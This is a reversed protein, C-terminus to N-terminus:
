KIVEELRKKWTEYEGKNDFWYESLLPCIEYKVVQELWTDDVEDSEPPCFYSHGIRYGDGLSEDKGIEVNLEQICKILRSFKDNGVQAIINKFGESDFAPEMDFFAFRRRLAYDIMALSRDATNMLGILYVNEPVAFRQKTYLLRIKEGRKDNEILMLLEGFIKSLNGRNIEDIIFFYPNGTPDGEAKKCFRYFPGPLLKFGDKAPKFGLIFDEYSYSQHFQIMEVRAEDMKTMFSYAFRKAAYTKGVGPPGQIIVNKKSRLLGTLTDYSDGDMFVEELFRSQTYTDATPSPKRPTDTDTGPENIFIAELALRKHENGTIDTLAKADLPIPSPWQGSHTWQVDCVHQFDSRNKEFRYGTQVVGRGIIENRGNKAFVVDGPKVVRAINWLALSINTPEKPNLEAMRISKAKADLSDKTEYSSLDGYGEWGLAMIGADHFEEWKSGNDGPAFTWYRVDGSQSGSPTVTGKKSFKWANSSLSPFSDIQVEAMSFLERTLDVLKLYDTANPPRNPNLLGKLGIFQSVYELLYTRNKGDLNLYSYPRAWYAGMTLTWKVKPQKIVKDYWEIFSSRTPESPGDAYSIAAEFMSWLNEIDEHLTSSQRDFFLINANHGMVPIGSLNTPMKSQVGLDLGLARMLSIRNPDSLGRNFSAMVSFPCIDDLLDGKSLPPYNIGTDKHAKEFIQLLGKRDDRYLLLKDAFESYFAEWGFTSSSNKM